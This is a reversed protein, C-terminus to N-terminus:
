RSRPRSSPSPVTASEGTTHWRKSRRQATSPFSPSTPAACFAVEGAGRLVLVRVAPDADLRRIVQAFQDWMALNM